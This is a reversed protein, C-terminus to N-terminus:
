HMHPLYLMYQLEPIRVICNNPKKDDATSGVGEARGAKTVTPM